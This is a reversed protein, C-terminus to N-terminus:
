LSRMSQRHYRLDAEKCESMGQRLMALIKEKEQPLNGYVPMMNSVNTADLLTPINLAEIFAYLERIKETETAETFNGTRVDEMLPTDPFISLGSALVRVPSLKNLVQATQVAHSMGYGHGGLGYLFIVSYRMGAADMKSLQAAIDESRYGKNMKELITDDGSEIGFVIMDYGMNKLSVLQEVSKNKLSDVRGYGGVSVTWPLYKRILEMIRKLKDYSLLFPDAGQLFIRNIKHGSAKIEQLDEIIEKEPSVSFPAEKYFTCFKCKNHSCGSTVQLFVSGAEYPPRVIGCSFHMM